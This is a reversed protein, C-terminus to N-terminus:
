HLADLNPFIIGPAEVIEFQGEKGPPTVGRFLSKPLPYIVSFESASGFPGHHPITALSIIRLPSMSKGDPSVLWEPVLWFGGGHAITDMSHIEGNIILMTKFIKNQAL